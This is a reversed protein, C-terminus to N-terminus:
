KRYCWMANITVTLEEDTDQERLTMVGNPLYRPVTVYAVMNPPQTVTTWVHAVFEDSDLGEPYESNTWRAAYPNNPFPRVTVRRTVGGKQRAVWNGPMPVSSFYMRQLTLPRASDTPILDGIAEIRHTVHKFEQRFIDTPTTSPAKREVMERAGDHKTNSATPSKQNITEKKVEAILTMTRTERQIVTEAADGEDETDTSTSRRTSVNIVTETDDRDSEDSSNDGEVIVDPDSTEETLQQLTLVGGTATDSKKEEADTNGPKDWAKILTLPYRPVGPRPTAVPKAAAQTLFEEAVKSLTLEREKMEPKALIARPKGSPVMPLTAVDTSTATTLQRPQNPGIRSWYKQYFEALNEVDLTFDDGQPKVVGQCEERHKYMVRTDSCRMRCKDCFALQTFPVANHNLFVALQQKSALFFRHAVRLHEEFDDAIVDEHECFFCEYVEKKTAHRFWAHFERDDVVNRRCYSCYFEEKM